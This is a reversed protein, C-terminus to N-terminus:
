RELPENLEVRVPYADHRIQIMTQVLEDVDLEDHYYHFCVRLSRSGHATGNVGVVFGARELARAFHAPRAGPVEVVVMASDTRVPVIRYGPYVELHERFRRALASNHRAMKEMSHLTIDCLAANLSLRPAAPITAAAEGEPPGPPENASLSEPVHLKVGLRPAGPEGEIRYLIGLTEQGLLWKHGSTAYYHVKRFLAPDIQIHGAAQAGDVIVIPRKCAPLEEITRLIADLPMIFGTEYCVHSLCLISVDLARVTELVLEAIREPAAGNYIPQRIEIMKRACARLAAAEELAARVAPFEADTWVITRSTEPNATLRPATLSENLAHRIAQTTNTFFRLSAASVGLFEALKRCFEAHGRWLAEGGPSGHVVYEWRRQRNEYYGIEERAEESIYAVGAVNFSRKAYTHRALPRRLRPWRLEGGYLCAYILLVVVPIGLYLLLPSWTGFRLHLLPVNIVLLSVFLLKLGTNLRRLHRFYGPESLTPLLPQRFMRHFPERFLDFALFGVLVAGLLLGFRWHTVWYTAVYQIISWVAENGQSRSLQGRGRTLLAVLLMITASGLVLVKFTEYNRLLRKAQPASLM